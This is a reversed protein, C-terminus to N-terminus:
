PVNRRTPGAIKGSCAATTRRSGPVRSGSQALGRSTLLMEKRPHERNDRSQHQGHTQRSLRYPPHTRRAGLLPHHLSNSAPEPSRVRLPSSNRVLPRSDSKLRQL